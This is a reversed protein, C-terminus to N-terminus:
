TALTWEEYVDGGLEQIFPSPRLITMGFERDKAVIPHCLYLENKARTTAVYFLRREEEVHDPENARVVPFRGESLWLVFVARFELGKAQHISSLILREDLDGGDVVEESAITGQLSLETLLSDLGQHQAAFNSLQQIDSLRNDHNEFSKRIFSRYGGDMIRDVMTAPSAEAERM